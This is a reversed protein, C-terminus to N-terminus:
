SLRQVQDKAVHLHGTKVPLMEVFRQFSATIGRTFQEHEHDAIDDRPLRPLKQLAVVQRVDGFWEPHFLQRLFNMAHQIDCRVLMHRRCLRCSFFYRSISLAMLLLSCVMNITLSSAAKHAAARRSNSVLMAPSRTADTVLTAAARRIRSSSTGM